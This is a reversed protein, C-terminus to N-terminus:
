CRWLLWNFSRWLFGLCLFWSLFSLSRFCPLWSFRLLFRHLFSSNFSNIFFFFLPKFINCLIFFRLFSNNILLLILYRFNFLFRLGFLRFFTGILIGFRLINLRLWNGVLVDICFHLLLRFGLLRLLFGRFFFRFGSRLIFIFIIFVFIGFVFLVLAFFINLLKILLNGFGDRSRKDKWDNM